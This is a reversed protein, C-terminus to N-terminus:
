ACAVRYAIFSVGPYRFSPQGIGVSAPFDVGRSAEDEAQLQETGKRLEAIEAKLADIERKHTEQIDSMQQRMQLVLAKLEALENDTENSDQISGLCAASFVMTCVLLGTTIVNKRLM